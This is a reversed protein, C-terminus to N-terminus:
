RRCSNIPCPRKAGPQGHGLHIAVVVLLRIDGPRGAIAPYGLTVISTGSCRPGAIASLLGEQNYLYYGDDINNM